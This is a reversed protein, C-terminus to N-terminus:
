HASRGNRAPILMQFTGDPGIFLTVPVAAVAVAVWGILAAVAGTIEVGELLLAITALAAANVTLSLLVISRVTLPLVYFVIATRALGNSLGMALTSILWAAAGEINIGPVAFVILSLAVVNLLFRLVYGRM